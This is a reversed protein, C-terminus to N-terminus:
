GAPQAGGGDYYETLSVGGAGLPVEHDLSVGAGADDTWLVPAILEMKDEDWSTWDDLLLGGTDSSNPNLAWFTHHLHRDAILNAAIRFLYAQPEDLTQERASAVLRACAEQVLDDVEHPDDVRRAVFARLAARYTDIRGDAFAPATENAAQGIAAM